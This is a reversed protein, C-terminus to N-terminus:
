AILKYNTDAPIVQAAVAVVVAPFDAAAAPSDVPAHEASHDAPVGPVEPNAEEAWAALVEGAITAVM